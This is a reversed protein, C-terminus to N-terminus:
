PYLADRILYKIYEHWVQSLEYATLQPTYTYWCYLFLALIALLVLLLGISFRRAEVGM